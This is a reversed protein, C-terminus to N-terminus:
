VGSMKVEKPDLGPEYSDTGVEEEQLIQQTDVEM